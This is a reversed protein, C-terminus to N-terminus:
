FEREAQEQEGHQENATGATRRLLERRLNETNRSRETKKQQSGVRLAANITRAATVLAYQKARELQEDLEALEQTSSRLLPVALVSVQKGHPVADEILTNGLQLNEGNSLAPTWCTNWRTESETWHKM